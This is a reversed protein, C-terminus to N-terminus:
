RYQQELEEVRAMEAAMLLFAGIGHLDNETRDRAIYYNYTGEEICTGVCIDGMSFENESATPLLTEIVRDYARRAAPYADRSIYGKRIGKAISYIFLCTCSNEPWNDPERWKDVVEYWRGEDSQWKLLTAILEQEIHIIEQYKPHDAPIDDLMDAIALVFWGCARGWVEPSLGTEPDAWDAKKSPDWGHRLLGNKDRMHEYMIFIQRIALERLEVKGTYKAYRTLLPGAMYLGDVWMQDPTTYFHWFGGYENKPYDVLSEALYGMLELYHPDSTKEYMFALVNAPQRVDLTTLTLWGDYERIHGNEDQVAHVWENIYDFYRQDGCLEYVRSMGTLFVGQHYNFTACGYRQPPLENVQYRRMMTDCAMRAYGLPTNPYTMM